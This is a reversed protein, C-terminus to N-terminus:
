INIEEWKLLHVGLKGRKVALKKEEKRCELIAKKIKALSPIVGESRSKFLLYKVIIILTNVCKIRISNGLLGVFVDKWDMNSIEILDLNQIIGQWM